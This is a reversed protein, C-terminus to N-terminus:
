VSLPPFVTSLENTVKRKSLFLKNHNNNNSDTDDTSSNLLEDLLEQTHEDDDDDDDDDINSEDDSDHHNIPKDEMMVITEKQNNFIVTTTSIPISTYNTDVLPNIIKTNTTRIVSATTNMSDDEEHDTNAITSPISSPITSNDNENDTLLRKNTLSRKKRIKCNDVLPLAPFYPVPQVLLPSETSSVNRFKESTLSTSSGNSTTDSLTERKRKQNNPPLTATPVTSDTGSSGNTTPDSENVATYSLNNMTNSSLNTSAATTSTESGYPERLQILRGDCLQLIYQPPNFYVQRAEDLIEDYYVKDLSLHYGQRLM